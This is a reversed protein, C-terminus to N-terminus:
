SYEWSQTPRDYSGGNVEYIIEKALIKNKMLGAARIRNGDGANDNQAIEEFVNQTIMEDKIKVAADLRISANEKTNKAVKTLADQETLLKVAEIRSGLNESNMAIEFLLVQNTLKKVEDAKYNM